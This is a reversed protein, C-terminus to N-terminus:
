KTPFSGKHFSRLVPRQVNRPYSKITSPCTRCCICVPICIFIICILKHSYHYISYMNFLEIRLYMVDFLHHGCKSMYAGLLGRKTKEDLVKNSPSPTLSYTPDQALVNAM